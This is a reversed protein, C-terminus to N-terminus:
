DLQQTEGGNRTCAARYVTPDITESVLRVSGDGLAFNSGVPHESSFNHFSEEDEASNPVDHGAAIVRGQAHEGGPVVGLWTSPAIRSSREGVILTNSLGDKIDSFAVYSNRYFTGNGKGDGHEIAQHLDDTGFVGIYNGVPMTIPFEHDHEDEHDHAGGHHHDSEHMEFLDDGADSPCRFVSLVLSRATANEHECVPVNLNVASKYVNGQELFPLIKAGWAWGPEDGHDFSSWGAPLANHVDHYLHLGTAIQKLNNSCHMRRAAERAMQVAPLLLAVLIGIIAIVVLLEVLTFGSSPNRNTRQKQSPM